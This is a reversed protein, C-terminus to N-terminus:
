QANGQPKTFPFRVQQRKASYGDHGLKRGKPQAPNLRSGPALPFHVYIPELRGTASRQAQEGTVIPFLVYIPELKVTMSPQAQEVTVIPPV